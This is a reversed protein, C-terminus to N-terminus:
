RSFIKRVLNRADDKLAVGFSIGIALALALVIGGVIVLFINEAFRLKFGIQGLAILVLSILAVIKTIDALSDAGKMKKHRIKDTAYDVVILGFIFIVTAALVNPLWTVLRFLLDSIVGLNLYSTASALFALFVWWKIITGSIISLSAGGIAKNLKSKTLWRDFGTRLLVEKVVFGLILSVFYGVIIILSAAALGPLADVFSAWLKAAPELLNIVAM